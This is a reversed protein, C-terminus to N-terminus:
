ANTEYRNLEEILENLRDKHWYMGSIQYEGIQLNPSVFASERKPKLLLLDPQVLERTQGDATRLRITLGNIDIQIVERRLNYVIASFYTLWAIVIIWFSDIMYTALLPLFAYGIMMFRYLNLNMNFTMGSIVSFAPRELGRGKGKDERYFDNNEAEKLM